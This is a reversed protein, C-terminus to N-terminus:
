LSLCFSNSLRNPASCSNIHSSTVLPYRHMMVHSGLTGVDALFVWRILGKAFCVRIRYMSRYPLNASYKTAIKARPAIMGCSVSRASQGAWIRVNM